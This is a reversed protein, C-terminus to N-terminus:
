CLNVTLTMCWHHTGGTNHTPFCFILAHHIIDNTSWTSLTIAAGNGKCASHAQSWYSYSWNSIPHIPIVWMCANTNMQLIEVASNCIAILWWTWIVDLQILGTSHPSSLAWGSNSPLLHGGEEGVHLKCVQVSVIIERCTSWWRYNLKTFRQSALSNVSSWM